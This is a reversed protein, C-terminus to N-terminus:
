PKNLRLDFDIGSTVAAEGSDRDTHIVEGDPARADAEPVDGRALLGPSGLGVLM